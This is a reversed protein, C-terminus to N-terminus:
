DGSRETLVSMPEETKKEARGEPYVVIKPSSRLRGFDLLRRRFMRDNFDKGREFNIRRRRQNRIIQEKTEFEKIQLRILLIRRITWKYTM